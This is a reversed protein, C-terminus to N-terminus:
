RLQMESKLFERTLMIFSRYFDDEAQRAATALLDAPWLLHKAYFSDALEWVQDCSGAEAPWSSLQELLNGMVDLQVGLHDLMVGGPLPVVDYGVVDIMERMSATATGQFQGAQWVSQFPPLHNAPGVFLRCYAIALNEITTKSDSADREYEPLVGGAAVFSDRLPAQRLEQLLDLDVERLWLRALLRYTGSRSAADERSIVATSVYAM